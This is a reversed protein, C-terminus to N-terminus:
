RSLHSPSPTQRTFTVPPRVDPPIAISWMAVGAAGGALIIAGLDLKSPDSGVPTM